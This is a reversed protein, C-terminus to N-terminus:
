WSAGNELCFDPIPQRASGPAFPYHGKRARTKAVAAGSRCVHQESLPRHGPLESFLAPASLTLKPNRGVIKSLCARTLKCLDVSERKRFQIFKSFHKVLICFIIIISLKFRNIDASRDPLDKM